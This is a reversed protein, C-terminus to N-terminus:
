YVETGTRLAWSVIFCLSDAVLVKTLELSPSYQKAMLEGNWPVCPGLCPHIRCLYLGLSRSRTDRTPTTNKAPIKLSAQRGRRLALWRWPGQGM